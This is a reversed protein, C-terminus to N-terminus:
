GGRGMMALIENTVAETGQVTQGVYQTYSAPEHVVRIGTELGTGSIVIDLNNAAGVTVPVERLLYTDKEGPDAVIVCTQGAENEYVADYPATLVGFVETVIYDLKAEMGIRLASGSTLVQVEAAFRPDASATTGQMSKEATPAISTIVGELTDNGTADSRIDVKMGEKVTGMDYGKVSTSVVLNEVDEIIFLLGSGTSGVEAYVATVTGGCPAKIKTDELSQQLQRLSEQSTANSTGAQAGAVSNSYTELQDETAKKAAAQNTLATQYTKWATEVNAAYDELTNGVTTETARYTAKQLEYADEASALAKIAATRQSDAMTVANEAESRRYQALLLEAEANRKDADNELQTMEDRLEQLEGRLATDDADPALADLQRELEDMRTQLANLEMEYPDYREQAEAEQQEAEALAERATECADEAKDCADYANNVATCANRLAAEAGLLTTNEGHDLSEVYRDYMTKAKEYADYANQVQTEASLLTTNLGQDLGTKFNEYNDQATELQVAGTNAATEMAIQQSTIQKQIAAGDLEALLDGAEVRDGVEVHVAMVPYAMTSYVMTSDASEVTGTASISDKLDGVSLVTTDSLTLLPLQEGRLLASIGWAALLAAVIVAAIIWKKRQKRKKQSVFKGPISKKEDQKQSMM